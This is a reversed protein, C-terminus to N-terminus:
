TDLTGLACFFELGKVECLFVHGSEVVMVGEREFVSVFGEEGGFTM